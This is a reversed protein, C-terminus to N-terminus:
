GHRPVPIYRTRCGRKVLRSYLSAIRSSEGRVILVELCASDVHSHIVTEVIDRFEESAEVADSPGPCVAVIVGRCEHPVIMHSHDELYCRVADEVLSSRDVGLKRALADLAEAIGEDLSVGFRRRAM